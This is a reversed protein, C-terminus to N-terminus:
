SAINGRDSHWRWAVWFWVLALGAWGIGYVWAAIRTDAMLVGWQRFIADWDHQGGGVLPLVQSRADAM